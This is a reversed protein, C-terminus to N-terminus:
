AAGETEPQREAAVEDAMRQVESRTFLYAGNKKPLKVAAEVRGAAVWRTLTAKDVDIIRAAETTGLLDTPQMRPDDHM